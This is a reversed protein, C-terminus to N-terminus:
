KVYLLYFSKEKPTLEVGLELKSVVDHYLGAIELDIKFGDIYAIDNM